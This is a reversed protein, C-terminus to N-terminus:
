PFPAEDVVLLRIVYGWKWISNITSISSLQRNVKELAVNSYSKVSGQGGSWSWSTSWSATNSQLDNFTTCQSGSSAAGAGWNNHYFTYPGATQSGWNGCFTTARKELASDVRSAEVELTSTPAAIVASAAFLASSLAANFKMTVSPHSFLLPSPVPLNVAPLLFSSSAELYPRFLIASPRSPCHDVRCFLCSYKDISQAVTLNWRRSQKEPRSRVLMGKRRLAAYFIM